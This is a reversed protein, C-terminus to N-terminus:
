IFTIKGFMVLILPQTNDVTNDANGINVTSLPTNTDYSYAIYDMTRISWLRYRVSDAQHYGIVDGSQFEIRSSGACSVNGLHYDGMNTIDSDTLACETEVRTYELSNLSTRHWVQVSPHGRLNNANRRDLSILYGTIRGNCSFNSRPVIVQRADRTDDDGSQRVNVTDVCSQGDIYLMIVNYKDIIPMASM